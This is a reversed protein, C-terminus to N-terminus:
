PRLCAAWTWREGDYNCERKAPKCEDLPTTCHYGRPSDTYCDWDLACSQDDDCEADNACDARVCRSCNCRTGEACDDDGICTNYQCWLNSITGACVGGAAAQCDDATECPQNADPYLCAAEAGLLCEPTRSGMHRCVGGPLETCDEHELCTGFGVGPYSCVRGASPIGVCRGGEGETCDAPGTCTRETWCDRRLCEDAALTWSAKCRLEPLVRYASDILDFRCYGEAWIEHPQERPANLEAYERRNTLSVHPCQSSLSRDGGSAPSPLMCDASEGGSAASSGGSSVTAGGEDDTKGGCGAFISSMLVAAGALIKARRM